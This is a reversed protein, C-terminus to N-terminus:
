LKTCHYERECVPKDMNEFGEITWVGEKCLLKASTKGNAFQHNNSCQVICNNTSSSCRTFAKKIIPKRKPCQQEDCESSNAARRHRNSMMPKFKPFENELRRRQLSHRLSSNNQLSNNFPFFWKMLVFSMSERTKNEIESKMRDNFTFVWKTDTEDMQAVFARGVHFCVFVLVCVRLMNSSHEKEIRNYHISIISNKTWKQKHHCTWNGM